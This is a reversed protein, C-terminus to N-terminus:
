SRATLRNALHIRALARYPPLTNSLMAATAPNESLLTKPVIPLRSASSAGSSELSLLSSGPVEGLHALLVFGRDRAQGTPQAEVEVLGHLEQEQDARLLAADM